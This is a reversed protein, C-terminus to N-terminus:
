RGFFGINRIGCAVGLCRPFAALYYFCSFLAGNKWTRVARAFGLFLFVKLLRRLSTCSSTSWSLRWWWSTSSSSRLCKLAGLAPAVTQAWHGPNQWYSGRATDLRVWAHGNDDVMETCEDQSWLLTSSSPAMLHTSLTSPNFDASLESGSHPSMKEPFLGFFFFKVLTDLLFRLLRQPVRYQAFIKFAAVLWALILSRSWLGSLVANRLLLSRQQVRDPLFVKFVSTEGEVVLFQFISTRSWLGSCCPLIPSSRRCKWWRNQRRSRSACVAGAFIPHLHSRPCKSLRSPFAFMSSGACKWWDYLDFFM